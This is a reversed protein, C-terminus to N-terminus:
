ADTIGLKRRLNECDRIASALKRGYIEAGRKSLALADEWVSREEESVSNTANKSDLIAQKGYFTAYEAWESADRERRALAESQKQQKTKM